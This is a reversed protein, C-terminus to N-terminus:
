ASATAVCYGSGLGQASEVWDAMAGNPDIFYMSYGEKKWSEASTIYKIKGRM